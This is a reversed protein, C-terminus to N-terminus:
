TNSIDFISSLIVILCVSFQTLWFFLHTKREIKFKSLIFFEKEHQNNKKFFSNIM